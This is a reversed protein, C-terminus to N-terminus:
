PESRHHRSKQQRESPALGEKAPLAAKAGSTLQKTPTAQCIFFAKGKKFFMLGKKLSAARFKLSTKAQSIVAQPLLILRSLTPSETTTGHFPPACLSGALVKSPSCFYKEGEAGVNKPNDPM